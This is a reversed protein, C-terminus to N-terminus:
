CEGYEDPGAPEICHRLFEISRCEEGTWSVISKISAWSWTPASRPSPRADLRNTVGYGSGTRRNWYLDYELTDLWLGALYKKERAKNYRKALGSIAPLNDKHMTLDHSTFDSVLSKWSVKDSNLKNQKSYLDEKHRGMTM